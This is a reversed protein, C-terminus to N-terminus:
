LSDIQNRLFGDIGEASTRKEGLSQIQGLLFQSTECCHFLLLTIFVPGGSYNM